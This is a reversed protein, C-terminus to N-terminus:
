RAYRSPQNAGSVDQMDCPHESGVIKDASAWPLLVWHCFSMPAAFQTRLRDRYGFKELGNGGQWGLTIVTAGPELHDM